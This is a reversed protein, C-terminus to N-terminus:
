EFRFYKFDFDTGPLFIFSLAQRGSIGEISFSQESYEPSCIFEAVRKEEHGLNDVFKIHLTNKEIDSRGCVIFKDSRRDGFNIDEFSVFVNNGIGTIAENGVNFSDGYVKDATIAPTNIYANQKETFVFGKLHIKHTKVLIGFDNVGRIVKDLIFTEEQYVNWISKRDYVREGLLVSGEKEPVGIWFSINVPSSSLEFIPLTITDSGIKGFDIDKYVVYSDENPSTSIGRENGNGTNGSSLTYLSASLFEYPNKFAEGFGQCEFDLISIVDSIGNTNIHACRLTFKGDSIGEISITSPDDECVEVKAAKIEVGRDNTIKWDLKNVSANLPYILAKIKIKPCDASIIHRNEVLNGGNIAKIDIKRVPIDSKDIEASVRIQGSIGFPRIVLLMKGNFLKRNSSQYSEFDASNGNDAGILEGPGEIKVNIRDCANCVSKGYKDVANVEVFRYEEDGQEINFVNDSLELQSADEFSEISDTAAINMSNDYAIAKIVGRKYPIRYDVCLSDGEIHDIEKLGLSEGDFFLEVKSLNSCVRVDIMQGDNFDWYPFVHVMPNVKPDVWESQCIYYADKPFGATDTMGFYSNRTHYPTPEGLYDIGTWLFQGLSYKNKRETVMCFDIYPAGWSTSCNGLSSCQLDDEDLGIVSLPFHYVARSQVCSATESGFIYWEPHKAHHDDYLYEGYNYGAVKIDDMALQTNDWQMYNSCLTIYAHHYKDHKRIEAAIKKLTRRGDEGAHTDYIENGASWLIISPHNRDRRIWSAIDKEHWDDFFRAYDYETKQLRWQDFAEGMVLFGMEDCLDLFGPAQVNHSNRIANVGMEKMITLQRRAAGKNFATGLCGADSHLCVGKLKRHKGNLFLGSDTDLEIRRFGFKVSLSDVLCEANFVNIEMTYLKPNDIDWLEPNVVQVNGSLLDIEKSSSLIKKEFYLDLEEISFIVNTDNTPNKIEVDALVTWYTGGNNKANICVSDPVIYTKELTYLYVDRNIGPGAYWRANPNRYNISVLLIDQPGTLYETIDFMFSTFGNVWRGVYRDNIYITADMYVGEFYIIYNKDDEPTINLKRRYWIVHDAYYKDFDHVLADHPIKVESYGSDDLGYKIDLKEECFPDIKCLFGDNILQKAM